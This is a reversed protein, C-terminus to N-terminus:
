SEKWFSLIWEGCSSLSSSSSPWHWHLFKWRRKIVMTAVCHSLVGLFVAVVDNDDNDNTPLRKDDNASYSSSCSSLSSSRNEIGVHWHSTDNNAPWCSNFYQLTTTTQRKDDNASRGKALHRPRRSIKLASMDDVVVVLRENGEYIPSLINSHSCHRLSKLGCVHMWDMLPDNKKKKQKHPFPVYCWLLWWWWITMIKMTYKKISPFYYIWIVALRSLSLSLSISWLLSAFSSLWTIIHRWRQRAHTRTNTQKNITARSHVSDM